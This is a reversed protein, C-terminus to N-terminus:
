VAKGKQLAERPSCERDRSLPFVFSKISVEVESLCFFSQFIQCFNLKSFFHPSINQGIKCNASGNVLLSKNEDFTSVLTTLLQLFNM